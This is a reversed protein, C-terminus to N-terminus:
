GRKRRRARVQLGVYGALTTAGGALLILTSAEPIVPPTCPVIKVPVEVYIPGGPQGDPTTYEVYATNYIVESPPFSLVTCTIVVVVTDGPALTITGNVVVTNGNITVTGATTTVADIRLHPDIQDTIRVNYWTANGAGGPNTVTITFRVQGNPDCCKVDAYKYIVPPTWTPPTPTPQQASAVPVLTLLLTLLLTWTLLARPTKM